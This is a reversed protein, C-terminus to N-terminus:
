PGKRLAPRSAMVLSEAVRARISARPLGTIQLPFAVNQAVTRLSWLLNFHPFFMGIKPRLRKSDGERLPTLERGPLLVSGSTPRELVNLLRILTSKGADSCGVIGYIEGLLDPDPSSHACGDDDM